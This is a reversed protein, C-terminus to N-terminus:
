KRPFYPSNYLEAKRHITMNLLCSAKQTRDNGAMFECNMERFKIWEDQVQKLKQLKESAALGGIEQYISNLEKEQVQLEDNYCEYYDSRMKDHYCQNLKNSVLELQYDESM